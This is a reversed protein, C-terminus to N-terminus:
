RSRRKSSLDKERWAMWEATSMKDPDKTVAARSAVPSIPAPAGTPKAKPLSATVALKGVEIFAREVSMSNLRKLEDPNNALYLAIAPGKDANLMAREVAPSVELSQARELVEDFDPTTERLEEMQQNFAKAAEQAERLQKAQDSEQQVKNLTERVRREVENQFVANDYEQQTAFQEPRIGQPQESRVQNSRNRLEVVERELAERKAQERFYDRQARNKARRLKDAESEEPKPEEVEKQEGEIPADTQEPLVEEVPAQEVVETSNEM